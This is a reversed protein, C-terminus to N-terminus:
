SNARFGIGDPTICVHLTCVSILARGGGWWVGQLIFSLNLWMCSLFSDHVHGCHLGGGCVYTYVCVCACVIVCLSLSGQEGNQLM